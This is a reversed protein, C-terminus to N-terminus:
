IKLGNNEREYENIERRKDPDPINLLEIDKIAIENAKIHNETKSIEDLIKQKVPDVGTPQAKGQQSKLDAIDRKYQAIKQNADENVKGSVAGTFMDLLEGLGKNQSGFNPKNSLFQNAGSKHSELREIEGELFIVESEINGDLVTNIRLVLNDREEVIHEPIKRTMGFGMAPKSGLQKLNNLLRKIYPTQSQANARQITQNLEFDDFFLTQYENLLKEDKELREKRADDWFSM